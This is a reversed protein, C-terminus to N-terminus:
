LLNKWSQDLRQIVRAEVSQKTPRSVGAQLDLELADLPRKQSGSAGGKM